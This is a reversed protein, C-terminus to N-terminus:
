KGTAASTRCVGCLISRGIGPPNRNFTLTVTSLTVGSFVFPKGPVAAEPMGALLDVGLM